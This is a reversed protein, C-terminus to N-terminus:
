ILGCNRASNPWPFYGRGSRFAREAVWMQELPTWLNATGKRRLLEQGYRAMFGWDM